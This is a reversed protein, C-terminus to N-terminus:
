RRRRLLGIAVIAMGALAAAAPEPITAHQRLTITAMAPGGTPPIMFKTPPINIGLWFIPTQGPFVGPHTDDILWWLNDPAVPEDVMPMMPFAGSKEMPAPNGKFSLFDLEDSEMFNPGLGMGLKMHYDTWRFRTRNFVDKDFAIMAGLTAASPDATVKIELDWWLNQRPDTGPGGDGASEGVDITPLMFHGVPIFLPDRTHQLDGAQGTVQINEVPAMTPQGHAKPAILCVGVAVLAIGWHMLCTAKM